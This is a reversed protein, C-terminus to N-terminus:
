MPSLCNFLEVSVSLAFNGRRDIFLMLLRLFNRSDPSRNYSQFNVFHIIEFINEMYANDYREYDCINKIRYNCNASMLIRTPVGNMGGIKKAAIFFFVTRPPVVM